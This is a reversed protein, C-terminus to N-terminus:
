PCGTCPRSDHTSAARQGKGRCWKTFATLAEIAQADTVGQGTKPDVPPLGLGARAATVLVAEANARDVQDEGKWAAVADNFRGKSALVVARKVALPDHFRGSVPCQYIDKESM